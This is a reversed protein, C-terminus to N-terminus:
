SYRVCLGASVALKTEDTSGCLFDFSFVDKPSFPSPCYRIPEYPSATQNPSINAHSCCRSVHMLM